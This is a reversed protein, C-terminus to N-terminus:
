ENTLLFYLTLSSIILSLASSLNNIVFFRKKIPDVYIIDGSKVFFKDNKAINKNTLDIFFIERFLYQCSKRLLFQYLSPYEKLFNM